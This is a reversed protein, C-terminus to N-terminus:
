ELLLRCVLNERSQLESTHEESRAVYAEAFAQAGRQAEQPGSARFAVDIVRSDAPSTASVKQLLKRTDDTGPLVEAARRAVLDSLDSSRRTPFCPRAVHWLFCFCS